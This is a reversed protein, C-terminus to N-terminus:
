AQATPIQSSDPLSLEAAAPKALFLLWACWAELFWLFMAWLPSLTLHSIATFPRASWAAASSGTLPELGIVYQPNFISLILPVPGQNSLVGQALVVIFLFLATWRVLGQQGRFAYLFLYLVWALIPLTVLIFTTLTDQGGQRLIRSVVENAVLVLALLFAARRSSLRSDRASHERYITFFFASWLVQTLITTPIGITTSLPPLVPSDVVAGITSLVYALARLGFVGATILSVWQLFM